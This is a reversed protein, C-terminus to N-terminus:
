KLMPTEKEPHIQIQQQENNNNMVLLDREETNYAMMTTDNAHINLSTLLLLMAAITTHQILDRM